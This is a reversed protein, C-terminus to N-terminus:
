ICAFFGSIARINAYKPLFFPIEGVAQAPLFLLYGHREASDPIGIAGELANEQPHVILGLDFTVLLAFQRAPFSIGTTLNEM